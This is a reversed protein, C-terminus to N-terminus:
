HCYIYSRGQAAGCEPSSCLQIINEPSLAGV